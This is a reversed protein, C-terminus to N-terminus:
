MQKKLFFQGGQREVLLNFELHACMSVNGQRDLVDCPHLPPMTGHVREKCGVVGSELASMTHSSITNGGRRARAREGRKECLQSSLM